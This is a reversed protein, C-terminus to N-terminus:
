FTNWSIGLFVEEARFKYGARVSFDTGPVPKAVAVATERYDDDDGQHTLEIVVDPGSLGFAVLGFYAKDSSSGEGLLFLSGFDTPRYHEAVVRLGVKLEELGEYQLAPGVRLTVPMAPDGLPFAYAATVNLDEGGEYDSYVTGFTLPGRQMSFVGTFTDVSIDAQAFYGDARVVSAGCAVAWAAVSLFSLRLPRCPM